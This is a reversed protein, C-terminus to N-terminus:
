QRKKSKVYAQYKEGRAQANGAKTMDSVEGSKQHEKNIKRGLFMLKNEIAEDTAANTEAILQQMDEETIYSGTKLKERAIDKAVAQGVVDNYNSTWEQARESRSIAHRVEKKNSGTTASQERATHAVYEVKREIAPSSAPTKIIDRRVQRDFADLRYDQMVKKLNNASYRGSAGLGEAWKSSNAAYKFYAHRDAYPAHQKLHTLPEVVLRMYDETSRIPIGNDLINIGMALSIGAPIGNKLAQAKALEDFDSIWQEVSVRKSKPADYKRKSTKSSEYAPITSNVKSRAPIAGAEAPHLEAISSLLEGEEQEYDIITRESSYDTKKIFGVTLIVAFAFGLVNLISIGGRRGHYYQQRM